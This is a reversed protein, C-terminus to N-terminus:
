LAGFATVAVKLWVPPPVCVRVTVFAPVPLPVTMDEGGPMSQPGVQLALKGVPVITVRVAEAAGPDTKVPHLAAHEPEPAQWTVIPPRLATGGGGGGSGTEGSPAARAGARAGALDGHARRLGDGGRERQVRDAEGERDRLRAVAVPGHRRRRRADVAAGRAAGAVRGASDDAEGRGVR